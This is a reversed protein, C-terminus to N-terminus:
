CAHRHPWWGSILSCRVSRPRGSGTLSSRLARRLARALLVVIWHRRHRGPRVTALDCAAPGTRRARLRNGCVICTSGRGLPMSVVLAASVMSRWRVFVPASRRAKSGIRSRSLRSQLASRVPSYRRALAFHAAFQTSAHVPEGFARADFNSIPQTVRINNPVTSQRM